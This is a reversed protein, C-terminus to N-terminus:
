TLYASKHRGRCLRVVVDQSKGPRLGFGLLDLGRQRREQPLEEGQFQVLGLGQDGVGAGLLRPEEAVLDGDLVAVRFEGAAM